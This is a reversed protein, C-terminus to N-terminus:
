FNINICLSHVQLNNGSGIFFLCDIVALLKSRRNKSLIDYKCYCAPSSSTVLYAVNRYFVRFFVGDGPFKLLDPFMLDLDASNTSPESEITVSM